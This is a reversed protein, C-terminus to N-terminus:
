FPPLPRRAGIRKGKLDSETQQTTKNELDIKNLRKSEFMREAELAIFLSLFFHVSIEKRCLKYKIYVGIKPERLYFLIGLNTQGMEQCLRRTLLALEAADARHCCFH